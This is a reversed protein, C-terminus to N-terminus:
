AGNSWVALDLVEFGLAELKSKVQNANSALTPDDVGNSIELNEFTHDDNIELVGSTSTIPEIVRNKLRTGISKNDADLSTMGVAPVLQGNESVRYIRVEKAQAVDLNKISFNAM